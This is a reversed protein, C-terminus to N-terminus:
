SYRMIWSKIEEDFRPDQWGVFHRKKEMLEQGSFLKRNGVNVWFTNQMGSPTSIPTRELAEVAKVYRSIDSPYFVVSRLRNNFFDLSLEGDCGLHTYRSVVLNQEFFPPRGISSLNIVEDPIRKWPISRTKLIAEVESVNSYSVFGEVLVIGAMKETYTPEFVTIGLSFLAYSFLSGPHSRLYAVSSGGIAISAILLITSRRM